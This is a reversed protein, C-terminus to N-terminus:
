QVGPLSAPAPLSAAYAAINLMDESSLNAVVPGMLAAMPGRRTGQQMDYLQRVLYSPSRAAIGPVAGIGNLDEGHCVTCQITTGGGTRVLEEGKAAAQFKYDPETFSPLTSIINITGGVSNRGYLTGQPGRLVEVREVDIFSNFSGQPRAIYVGDMHITSSPDSGAFVNNSGVGRIYIQAWGTNESITLGPTAHELDRVDSMMASSLADGTFATIALPTDQLNVEGVKTATVIIEEIRGDDVDSQANAVGAMM